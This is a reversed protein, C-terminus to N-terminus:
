PQFITQTASAAANFVLFMNEVDAVKQKLLSKKARQSAYNECLFGWGPKMNCSFRRTFLIDSKKREGFCSVINQHTLRQDGVLYNKVFKEYGAAALLLGMRNKIM